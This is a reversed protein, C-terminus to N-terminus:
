LGYEMVTAPSVIHLTHLGALKAGEINKLTDDIFLTESADLKQENLIYIFSEPYPKRLGMEHSYYAKIFFSNFDKGGSQKYYMQSFTHYHPLNTNSFLYISYKHKIADLWELREQPFHLLMAGWAKFIDEDTANAGSAMRLQECFEKGTIKGTELLEFLDTAHHQSYLEHFNRIGIDIFAKETKKFDLNLFIGGLDFIINKYQQMSCFLNM